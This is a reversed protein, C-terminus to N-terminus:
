QKAGKRRIYLEEVEKEKQGFNDSRPQGMPTGLVALIKDLSNRVLWEHSKDTKKAIIIISVKALFNKIQFRPSLPQGLPM